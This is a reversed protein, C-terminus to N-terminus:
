PNGFALFAMENSWELPLWDVEDKPLVLAPHAPDFM